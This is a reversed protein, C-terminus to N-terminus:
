AQGSSAGFLFEQTAAEGDAPGIFALGGRLLAPEYSLNEVQENRESLNCVQGVHLSNKCTM